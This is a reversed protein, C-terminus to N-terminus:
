HRNLSSKYKKYKVLSITLSGFIFVLILLSSFTVIWAKIGRSSLYIESSITRFNGGNLLTIVFDDFSIALVIIMAVFINPLLHPVIVTFFTRLKSAGLDASANVLNVKLNEMRPYLSFIAYPVTFSIHSLVVTLYGFDIGLPIFTASFLLTLSIGTIIDPIALNIKSTKNVWNNQKYKLMWISVVTILAIFTAVPVTVIAVLFSNFFFQLFDSDKFLMVWNQTTPTTFHLVINGRPSQGAFSFAVILLLPIYILALIIFVYSNRLWALISSKEISFLRM